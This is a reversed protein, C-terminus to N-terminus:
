LCVVGGGVRSPMKLVTNNEKQRGSGSRRKGQRGKHCEVSM